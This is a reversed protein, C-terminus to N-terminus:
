TLFRRMRQGAATFCYVADWAFRVGLESGLPVLHVGDVLVVWNLGNKHTLHIFTQSGRVESLTVTFPLAQKAGAKEIKLAQPRVALVYDGAPLKKVRVRVALETTLVNDKVVGKFLNVPPDDYLQISALLQPNEYVEHAKGYELLHGDKMVAVYDAFFLPDLPDTTAYFVTAGQATLITKLEERLEERLKYDLNVLPEDLCLLQAEKALARAISVRQQQGGSLERPKRKLLPSLKLLEALMYVKERIHKRPLGKVELPSAINGYVTLSPYNIFEQYVMAVDRKAVAFGSVDTGAIVFSGSSLRELGALLRLLSTKGAHTRGLLVNFSGLPFKVSLPKLAWGDGRRLTVETLEINGRGM